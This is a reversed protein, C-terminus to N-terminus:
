PTFPYSKLFGVRESRIKTNQVLKIIFYTELWVNFLLSNLKILPKSFLSLKLYM